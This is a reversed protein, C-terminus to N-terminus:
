NNGKPLFPILITILGALMFLAVSALTVFKNTSTFSLFGALGLLVGDLMLIQMKLKHHENTILKSNKFLLYSWSFGYILAIGGALWATISNVNWFIFGQDNVIPLRFNVFQITVVTM